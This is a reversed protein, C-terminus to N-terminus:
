YPGFWHIAVALNHRTKQSIAGALWVVVFCRVRDTKPWSLLKNRGGFVRSFAVDLSFYVERGGFV